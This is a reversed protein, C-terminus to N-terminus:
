EVVETSGFLLKIKLMGRGLAQAHETFQCRTRTEVTYQEPTYNLVALLSPSTNMAISLSVYIRLSM